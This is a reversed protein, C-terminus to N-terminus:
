QGCKVRNWEEKLITKTTALIQDQFERAPAASRDGSDTLAHTIANELNSVLENHRTEQPNLFLEVKAKRRLVERAYEKGADRDVGSYGDEKQSGILGLLSVLESVEVRLDNIWEQRNASVVTATIHRKSTILSVLPGAVASVLAIAASIVAALAAYYAPESGTM